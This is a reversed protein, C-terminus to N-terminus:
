FAFRREPELHHLPPLVTEFLGEEAWERPGVRSILRAEMVPEEGIVAFLRGGPKLQELFADPLQAVSGTLVIVDYPAKEPWGEAADGVVLEVNDAQVQELRSAAARSLEEYLEVSVVKFALRSLLATLYGSGTGVELVTENPRVNLAQLLKAEIKPHMMEQGQPLPVAIDSYAVKQYQPEVFLHRPMEMMVDLVRQDLVEWPRIQQEVMNFRAREFEAENM